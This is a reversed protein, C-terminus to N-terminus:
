SPSNSPNASLVSSGSYSTKSSGRYKSGPSARRIYQPLHEALRRSLQIPFKAGLDLLAQYTYAAAKRINPMGGGLFDAAASGDPTRDTDGM